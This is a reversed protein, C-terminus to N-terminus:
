GEFLLFGVIVPNDITLTRRNILNHVAFNSEVIMIGYDEVSEIIGMHGVSGENTIIIAGPTPYPLPRLSLLDAHNWVYIPNYWSQNVEMRDKVFTVCSGGYSGNADYIPTTTPLIVPAKVYGADWATTQNVEKAFVPFFLFVSVM